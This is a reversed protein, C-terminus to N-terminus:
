PAEELAPGGCAMTTDDPDCTESVYGLSKLQELIEKETAPKEEKVREIPSGDYSPRFRLPKTQIFDVPKGQMNRAIPLSRWALVTPTIDNVSIESAKVRYGAPVGRGRAFFIGNLARDSEHIGPLPNQSDPQGGAEFGHDSLVIVLDNPGYNESLLGILEDVHAYYDRLAQHQRRHEELSLRMSEPYISRPEQGAWIFHSVRDIGPLYVMLLSPRLEEEIALAARASLVDNRFVQALYEQTEESEQLSEAEFPNKIRTLPAPEDLWSSFRTAWSAPYVVGAEFDEPRRVAVDTVGVMKEGFSQALDLRRESISPFAFDSIMVGQIKEPPHTMLWNVVGVDEKSESVINWLAHGKRDLSTYLRVGGTGDKQIWNEIGHNPPAKGTAVSTWVRPSLLPQHSRISGSAGQQALAQFNPLQGSKMMPGIVRFTAGDVAIILVRGPPAAAPGSPSEWCASMPLSLLGVLLLFKLGPGPLAPHLTRNRM